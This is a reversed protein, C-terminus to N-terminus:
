SSLAILLHSQLEFLISVFIGAFARVLLLFNQLGDPVHKSEFVNRVSLFDEKKDNLFFEIGRSYYFDLMWRNIIFESDNQCNNVVEMDVMNLVSRVISPHFLPSSGRPVESQNM